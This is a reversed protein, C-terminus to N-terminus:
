RGDIVKLCLEQWTNVDCSDPGFMADYTIHVAKQSIVTEGIDSDFIILEGKYPAIRHVECKYRRDLIACWVVECYEGRNCTNGEIDYKALPKKM